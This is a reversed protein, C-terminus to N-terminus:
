YRGHSLQGDGRREGIGDRCQELLEGVFNYQKFNYQKIFHHQQM